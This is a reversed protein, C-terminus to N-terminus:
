VYGNKYKAQQNRYEQDYDVYGNDYASRMQQSEEKTPYRGNKNYFTRIDDRQASREDANIASQTAIGSGVANTVGQIANNNDQTDQTRARTSGAVIDSKQGLKNISNSFTQQRMDNGYNREDRNWNANFKKNADERNINKWAFDNATSTNQNGVNQENTLNFRDGENVTDARTNAWSQANKATRANFSNIIDANQASMSRDQSLVESGLKGSDLIAQLRNKYAQTAANQSLEAGRDLAESSAQQQLGAQLGSGLMGRRAFDQMISQSRSQANMQANREAKKMVAQFEPDHEASALGSMKRLASLQAMRGETGAASDQVLEPNREEILPAVEPIHKRVVAYLEPTLSSFDFDPADIPTTNFRPDQIRDLAEELAAREQANARRGQESNLYQAIAGAAMVGAVVLPAVM